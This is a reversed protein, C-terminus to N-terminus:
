SSNPNCVIEEYNLMHSEHLQIDQLGLPLKQLEVSLIPETNQYLQPPWFIRSVHPKPNCDIISPDRQIEPVQINCSDQPVHDM